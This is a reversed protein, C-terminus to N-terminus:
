HSFSHYLAYFGMVVASMYVLTAFLDAIGAAGARSSFIVLSSGIVLAAIILGVLIKDTSKDMAHQLRQLDTDVMELRIAGSSFRRLIANLNGPLEIFGELATTASRRVRNAVEQATVDRAAMDELYPEVYRTFNFEPDLRVGIDAVMMVVKLMLMLNMPVNLSYRRMVATLESVMQSFNVEGLQFESYDMLAIYLDDRLSDMQEPRIQIGLKEFSRLMMDIDNTVISTLLNIFVWRKEPRIIGVIGFDLFVLDGKATVLLNGPHPDGHFFGDEFIQKIYATFGTKGIKKPDHGMRRLAEVDDVRVGEIFEMVLMRPGSYEWYIKPCRVKPIGQMNRTLREANKGDRIFDLEKRIQVAFDEVMGGPNYVKLDPFLTEVRKAMWRLIVIDKEIIAPIGPRQVKLAVPTGDALVGRYVMSISASGVPTEDINRFTCSLDGCYEEFIPRVESFPLPAVQDQLKQLEAILEPPLIETRTSAIQGFKIFTPGLEEIALRIRQYVPLQQPFHRQMFRWNRVSPLYEDLLIGFGYKWLVNAIQRYRRFRTVM